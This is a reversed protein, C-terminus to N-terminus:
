LRQIEVASNIGEHRRGSVQIQNKKFRYHKQGLTNQCLAGRGNYEGRRTIANLIM